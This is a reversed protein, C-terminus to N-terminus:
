QPKLEASVTLTQGDRLIQLETPGNREAIAAAFSTIDGVPSGALSLIYDGDHVGAAAAASNPVVREVRVARHGNPAEAQSVLVGL